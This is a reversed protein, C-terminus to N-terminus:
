DHIVSTHHFLTNSLSIDFEDYELQIPNKEHNERYWFGHLSTPLIKRYLCRYLSAPQIKRWKKRNWFRYLSAPQIRTLDKKVQVPKVNRNHLMINICNCHVSYRNRNTVRFVFIWQPVSRKDRSSLYFLECSLDHARHFLKCISIRCWFSINERHRCLM